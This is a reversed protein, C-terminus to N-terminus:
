VGGVLRHEFEARFEHRLDGHQLIPVSKMAWVTYIISSGRENLSDDVQNLLYM